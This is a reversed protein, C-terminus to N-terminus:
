SRLEDASQFEIRRSLTQRVPCSRAAENLAAKQDPTLSALFRTAAAAMAAPAKDAARMGAVAALGCLLAVLAFRSSTM